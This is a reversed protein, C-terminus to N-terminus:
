YSALDAILNVFMAVASSSFSLSTYLIRMEYDAIEGRCSCYNLSKGSLQKDLKERLRKGKRGCNNV